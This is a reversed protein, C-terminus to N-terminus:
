PLPIILVLHHHFHTVKPLRDVLLSVNVAGTYEFRPKVILGIFFFWLRSPGHSGELSKRGIFEVCVPAVCGSSFGGISQAIFSSPFVLCVVSCSMGVDIFQYAIVVM